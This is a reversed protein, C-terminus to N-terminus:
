HRQITWGQNGRRRERVNIQGTEQTCLTTLTEPNDMRSKGKSHRQKTWGQNGRRRERVNIQVFIYIMPRSIPLIFLCEIRFMEQRITNLNVKM